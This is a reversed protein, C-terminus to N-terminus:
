QALLHRYGSILYVAIHCLRRIELSLSNHLFAQPDYLAGLDAARALGTDFRARGLPPM